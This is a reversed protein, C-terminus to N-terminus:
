LPPLDNREHYEVYGKPLLPPELPKKKKDMKACGLFLMGILVFSLIKLCM